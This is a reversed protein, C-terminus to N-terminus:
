RWSRGWCRGPGGLVGAGHQSVAPGHRARPAPPQPSVPSPVRSTGDQEAGEIRKPTLNQERIFCRALRRRASSQPPLLEGLGAGRPSAADGGGGVGDAPAAQDQTGQLCCVPVEGGEWGGRSGVASRFVSVPTFEGTGGSLRVGDVSPLRKGCAGSQGTQASLLNNLSSVPPEKSTGPVPSGELLEQFLFALRM